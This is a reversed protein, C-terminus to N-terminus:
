LIKEGYFQIYNSLKKGWKEKKMKVIVKGMQNYFQDRANLKMLKTLKNM